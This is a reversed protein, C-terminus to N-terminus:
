ARQVFLWTLAAYGLLAVLLLGLLIAAAMRRKGSWKRVVVIFFGVCGLALTAALWLTM